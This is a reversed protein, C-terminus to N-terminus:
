EYIESLISIESNRITVLDLNRRKTIIAAEGKDYLASELSSVFLLAKSRRIKMNGLFLEAVKYTCYVTLHLSISM